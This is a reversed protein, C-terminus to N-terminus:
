LSLEMVWDTQAEGGLMFLHTGRRVFGQSEYFQIAKPNHEWVGLWIKGKNKSRAVQIARQLLRKGLGRGQLDRDVYIREIELAHGDRGDTQAAGENLKIYGMWQDASCLAYFASDSTTLQRLLQDPGFAEELYEAMAEPTNYQGYTDVFTKIALSRLSPLDEVRCQKIELEM